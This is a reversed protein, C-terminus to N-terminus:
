IEFRWWLIFIKHWLFAAQLQMLVPGEHGYIEGLNQTSGDASLTFGVMLYTEATDPTM